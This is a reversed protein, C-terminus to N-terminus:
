NQIKWETEKKLDTLPVVSTCYVVGKFDASQLARSVAWHCCPHSAPKLSLPYKHIHSQARQEERSVAVTSNRWWSRTHQTTETRDSETRGQPGYGVLSRQGHPEAFLFVPTPQWERRWPTKRVWPNSGRRNYRKSQCGPKKGSLVVQSGRLWSYGSVFYFTLFFTQVKIFKSM